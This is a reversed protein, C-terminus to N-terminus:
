LPFHLPSVLLRWLFSLAVHHKWRRVIWSHAKQYIPPPELGLSGFREEIFGGAGFVLISRGTGQRGQILQYLSEGAGGSLRDHVFLVTM